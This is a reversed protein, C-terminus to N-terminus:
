NSSWESRRRSREIGSHPSIPPTVSYCRARATLLPTLLRRSSHENSDCGRTVLIRAPELEDARRHTMALEGATSLWLHHDPIARYIAMAREYEVVAEVERGAWSLLHARCHPGLAEIRRDRAARGAHELDSGIHLAEGLRGQGVLVVNLYALVAAWPELEGVALIRLRACNPRRNAGADVHTITSDLVRTVLRM